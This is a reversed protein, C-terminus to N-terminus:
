REHDVVEVPGGFETSLEEMTPRGRPFFVAGEDPYESCWAYWGPGSHGYTAQKLTVNTTNMDMDNRVKSEDSM